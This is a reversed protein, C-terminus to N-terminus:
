EREREGKDRETRGEQSGEGHGSYVRNQIICDQPQDRLPFPHRLMPRGLV